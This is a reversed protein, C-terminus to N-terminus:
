EVGLHKRVIKPLERTSLPKAIFDAFGIERAREDDGSRGYATLAIVPIHSTIVNHKLRRTLEWGDMGPLQIDMLILAPDCDKLVEFMAIAGTATRVDFGEAGLLAKALELNNADDDVVLIIRPAEASSAGGGASGNAKKFSYPVRSYLGVRDTAPFSSLPIVTQM